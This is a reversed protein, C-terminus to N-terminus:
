KRKIGGCVPCQEWKQFPIIRFFWTKMDIVAMKGDFKPRNLIVNIVEMAEISAIFTVAYPMVGVERPNLPIKDRFVCELCPTQSPIISLVNGMEKVVGAFVYPIGLKIAARNIAKRAIYNDVGDAVLTSGSLLSIANKETIKEYLTEISASPEIELLRKKAIQTKPMGIDRPYYLLQRHLDTVSVKDYDILRLKKIGMRVLITAVAAGLGGVGVITVKSKELIKQENMSLLDKRLQRSYKLYEVPIQM